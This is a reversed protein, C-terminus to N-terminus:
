DILYLISDMLSKQDRVNERAQRRERTNADVKMPKNQQKRKKHNTMM